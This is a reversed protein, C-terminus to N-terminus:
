DLFGIIKSSLISYDMFGVMTLGPTRVGLRDCALVRVLLEFRSPLTLSVFYNVIKIMVQWM